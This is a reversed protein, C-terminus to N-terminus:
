LNFHNIASKILTNLRKMGNDYAQTTMGIEEVIERRKMGMELGLLIEQITEDNASKEEIYKMVTDYDMQEDILAVTVPLLAELYNEYSEDSSLDDAFVDLGTKNESCTIDNSVM